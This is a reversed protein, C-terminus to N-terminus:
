VRNSGSITFEGVDAKRSELSIWHIQNIRSLVGFQPVPLEWSIFPLMLKLCKFSIKPLRGALRPAAVDVAYGLRRLGARLSKQLKLSDEIVLTKM